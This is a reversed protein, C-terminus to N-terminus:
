AQFAKWWGGARSAGEGRKPRLSGAVMRNFIKAAVAMKGGQWTEVTSRVM